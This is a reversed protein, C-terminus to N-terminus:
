ITKLLQLFRHKRHTGFQFRYNKFKEERHINMQEQLKGNLEKIESSLIVKVEYMGDTQQQADTQEKMHCPLTGMVKEKYRDMSSVTQKLQKVQCRLANEVNKWDRVKLAQQSCMRKQLKRELKETQCIQGHLMAEVERCHCETEELVTEVVRKESRLTAEAFLTAEMEDELESRLNRIAQVREIDKAKLRRNLVTIKDRYTAKMQCRKSDKEKLKKEICCMKAVAENKLRKAEQLEKELGIIKDRYTGEIQDRESDKEKSPKGLGHLNAETENKLFQEKLKKELMIIKERYAAEM